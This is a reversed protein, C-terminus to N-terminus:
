NEKDDVVEYGVAANGALLKVKQIPTLDVRNAVAEWEQQRRESVTQDRHIDTLHDDYRQGPTRSDDPDPTGVLTEGGM